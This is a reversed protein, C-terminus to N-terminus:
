FLSKKSRLSVKSKKYLPFLIKGPNVNDINFEDINYNLIEGKENIMDDAYGKAYDYYKSEGTHEWLKLFALSVLGHTYSWKPTERGELQWARENRKMISQAMREGWQQNDDIPSSVVVAVENNTESQTCQTLSVALLLLGIYFAWFRGTTKTIKDVIKKKTYM